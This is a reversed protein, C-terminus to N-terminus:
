PISTTTKRAPVSAALSTAMIAILGSAALAPIFVAYSYTRIIWPAAAVFMLMAAGAACLAIVAALDQRANAPQSTVATM